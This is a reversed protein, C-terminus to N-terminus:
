ESITINRDMNTNFIQSLKLTIIARRVLENDGEVYFPSM